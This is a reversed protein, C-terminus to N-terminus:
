VMGFTARRILTGIASSNCFWERHKFKPILQSLLPRPLVMVRGQYGYELFLLLINNSEGGRAIGHASQSPRCSVGWCVVLALVHIYRFTDTDATVVRCGPAACRFSQIGLTVGHHVESRPILFCHAHAMWSWVRNNPPTPWVIHERQVQNCQFGIFGPSLLTMRIRVRDQRQPRREQAVVSKQLNFSPEKAGSAGM